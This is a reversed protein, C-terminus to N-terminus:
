QGYCGELCGIRKQLLKRAYHLQSKSTGESIGLMEAAEKHTYGEVMVLLFVTRYGESLSLIAKELVEGCFATSFVVEQTIIEDSDSPKFHLNKLHALATRVVIQKIWAGLSSEMRFQNLHQFVKVFSEQLVDSAAEKDNTIRYATSYM